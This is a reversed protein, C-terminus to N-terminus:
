NDGADATSLQAGTNPDVPLGTEAAFIQALLRRWEEFQAEASGELRLTQGEVEVLVPEIEADFSAALERLAEVNLKAEKGTDIGDKLVLAGGIAAADRAVRSAGSGGDAFAAGFLMLGGSIKKMLAERRIERLAMQEEYSNSRWKDYSDGMRAYFDAYYENLTDVFMYDRERVQALRDLMPDSQAPLKAIKYRGKKNVRLYDEFAVPVLDAAFRLWTMERLAHIEDTDLRQREALMDNAIRNYLDQHPDQDGATEDKKYALPDVEHKYKRERWVRGISDTIRVQLVLARGTSLLIEGSINVEGADVGPPVVRVAGWQGTAELTNKLHYPIFRAESKRVGAYVWEEELADEDEEPLGPDFIQIGVDLLVDDAIEAQAQVAQVEKKAQVPVVVLGLVLCSLTLAHISKSYRHM